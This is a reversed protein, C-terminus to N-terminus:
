KESAIPPGEAGRVTQVPAREGHFYDLVAAVTLRRVRPSGETRVRQSLRAMTDRHGIAHMAALALVRDNEDRDFVYREMLPNSAPHFDVKEGPYITLFMINVAAEQWVADDKSRVAEIQDKRLQKWEAKTLNEFDIGALGNPVARGSIVVTWEGADAILTAWDNQAPENSALQGRVPVAVQAAICVAFGIISLTRRVNTTGAINSTNHLSGM